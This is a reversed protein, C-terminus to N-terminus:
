KEKKKNKRCLIELIKLILKNFKQSFFLISIVILTPIAIILTYAGINYWFSKDEMWKFYQKAWFIEFCLFAGTSAISIIFLLKEENKTVQETLPELKTQMTNLKQFEKEYKEYFFKMKNAIQSNINKNILEKSFNEEDESTKGDNVFVISTTLDENLNKSFNKQNNNSMEQTNANIEKSTSESTTEIEEMSFKNILKQNKSM